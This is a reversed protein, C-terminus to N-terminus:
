PSNEIKEANSKRAENMTCITVAPFPVEIMPTIKAGISVIVPSLKWKIYVQNIYYSAALIALIFAITWFLRQLWNTTTNGVFKLGHLSTQECFDHFVETCKM